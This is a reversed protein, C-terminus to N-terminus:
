HRADRKLDGAVPHQAVHKIGPSEHMIDSRDAVIGFREVFPQRPAAQRGAGVPQDREVLAAAGRDGFQLPRLLPAVGGRLLDARRHRALVNDRGLVEAGLDRAQLRGHRLQLRGLALRAGRELRRQSFDRVQRELVDRVALVLVVVDFHAPVARRRAKGLPKLRLLMELDPLREAEHVEVRGGFQRARSEDHQLSRERAQRARQRLEHQVEVRDLVAIDLDLRRNQDAVLRHEARRLQRLELLILVLHRTSIGSLSATQAKM